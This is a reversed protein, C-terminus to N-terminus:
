RSMRRRMQPSNARAFAMTASLGLLSLVAPVFFIASAYFAGALSAGLVLLLFWGILNTSPM